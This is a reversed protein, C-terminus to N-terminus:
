HGLVRDLIGDLGEPESGYSAIVAKRIEDRGFTQQDATETSGTPAVRCTEEPTRVLRVGKQQAVETALATVISDPRLSLETRGETLARTIDQQTIVHRPM